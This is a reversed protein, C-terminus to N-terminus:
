EEQHECTDCGNAGNCKPYPATDCINHGYMRQQLNAIVDLAVKQEKPSLSNGSKICDAECDLLHQIVDIAENTGTHTENKVGMEELELVKIAHNIAEIAQNTMYDALTYKITELYLVADVNDM